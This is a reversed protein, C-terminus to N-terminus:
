RVLRRLIYTMLMGDFKHGLDLDTKSYIVLSINSGDGALPISPSDVVSTDWYFEDWNDVDWYGGSGQTEMTESLHTQRDSDAYSFEATARFTSYGIASMEITAKRYSKLVSPSKSHNFPLWLWAEIDEGDFSSGKDAEYVMGADSGFFVVSEGSADEGYTACSVNVPYEFQTFYFELGNRGQGFAVCIGTGDSGFLRYQNRSRYVVSEVAVSKMSSVISRVRRSVTALDFNGYAQVRSVDIIGRDDLSYSRGLVNRITYPLAGSDDDVPDLAFDDVNNGLLQNITNRSYILLSEAQTQYGTIDDGLAIESAGTVPTWEYPKGVGSNQSSAKFSFFLQNKYAAVHEPTDATMGTDIPVYVTGDFEFGRNVGDCGYIRKTATSGTFNYVSFEYRGGPSITIAMALSSTTAEVGTVTLNEGSQFPGGAISSIILRGAADVGWTGSELVVRDVTATAGSLAGTITDGDAILGVGTNFSIENTPSAAAWGSSTQKYILGATGLANDRFCYLIGNLIVLGRIAGSGTPAAIDARYVDATANLATAHLLATSEGKEVQAATFTGKPNGGVTYVEDDNFDGSLKTVNIYNTGVTIVEGTEGSDAGTVTDGVSPGGDTFSCPCYYYTGDSPSTQGDFREYADIRSYGGESGCMYNMCRLLAGPHVSLAPSELDLGGKFRVYEPKPKPFKM